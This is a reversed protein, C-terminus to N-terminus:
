LSNVFEAQIARSAFFSLVLQRTRTWKTTVNRDLYDQTFVSLLIMLVNTWLIAPNYVTTWSLISTGWWLIHLIEAVQLRIKIRVSRQTLILCSWSNKFDSWKIASISCIRRLHIENQAVRYFCNSDIRHAFWNLTAFWFGFPNSEATTVDDPRKVSCLM